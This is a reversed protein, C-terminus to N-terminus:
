FSHVLLLFVFLLRSFRQFFLTGLFLCLLCILLGEFNTRYLSHRVMKKFKGTAEDRRLKADGRRQPSHMECM